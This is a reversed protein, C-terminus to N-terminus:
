IWILCLFLCVSVHTFVSRGDIMHDPFRSLVRLYLDCNEEAFVKVQVASVYFLTYIVDYSGESDDGIGRCLKM